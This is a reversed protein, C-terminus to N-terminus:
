RAPERRARGAQRNELARRALEPELYSLWVEGTLTSFYLKRGMGGLVDRAVPVIGNGALVALAVEVNRRGVDLMERVPANGPQMTNAGGFLKVTLEDPPMGAARFRELLNSVALDAFTCPPAGSGRRRLSADPLMAHFMGGAKRGPHHFTASVCSGLVTTFLLPRTSFACDGINVHVVPLGPHQTLPLDPM